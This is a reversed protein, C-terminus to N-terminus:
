SEVARLWGVIIYLLLEWKLGAQTGDGSKIIGGQLFNNYVTAHLYLLDCVVYVYLVQLFIPTSRGPLHYLRIYM